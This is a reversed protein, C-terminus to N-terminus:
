RRLLERMKARLEVAPWALKWRRWWQAVHRGLRTTPAHLARLESVLTLDAHYLAEGLVTDVIRWQADQWAVEDIYRGRARAFALGRLRADHAGRFLLSANRSAQAAHSRRLATVRPVHVFKTTAALRIWLDYDEAFRLGETYGGVSWFAPLRVIVSSQSVLNFELMATLVDEPPGFAVEDSALTIGHELEGTESHVLGVDPSTFGSALIELHDATWVDDADLFAVFDLDGLERAGANRASAPGSNLSLKVVSVGAREAILVSDDTSCDDVVVIKLPQLTQGAVCDLAESLFASANFAPIVVGIRPPRLENVPTRSSFSALWAPFRDVVAVRM